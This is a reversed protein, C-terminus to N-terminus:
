ETVTVLPAPQVLADDCVMLAIALGTATTEAEAALKVQEILLIFKVAVPPLVYAQLLPADVDPMLVELTPTYVTVTVFALPQVSVSCIYTPLLVWAGKAAM